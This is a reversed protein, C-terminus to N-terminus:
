ARLLDLCVVVFVAADSVMAALHAGGANLKCPATSIEYLHAAVDGAQMHLFIKRQVRNQTSIQHVADIM